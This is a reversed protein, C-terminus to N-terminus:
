LQLAEVFRGAIADWSFYRRYAEVSREHLSHWLDRNSLLEALAAGLAGQDRYRALFLGAAILPAGTHAGEYAVIPLGCAIGAVGTTRQSSIPGRVFLLVDAKALLRSIDEAPLLGLVSLEVKKGDMARRLPEEAEKSGRGMVVLRLRPVAEAARCVARAIDTVERHRSEGGTVSFVAVTKAKQERTRERDGGRPTAPVNSGVPICTAKNRRAPLWTARDVPVNLVAREAWHYARRMVWEQYTRRLRDIWRSGPFGSPDHFVVAIRCSRLRLITLVALLGLPFGRRSWSMATYHVLAWRGPWGSSELWVRWLARLWGVDRWPVRIRELHHGRTLLAQGLLITYDELGDTPSARRGLLAVLRSV